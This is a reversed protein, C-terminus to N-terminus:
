FIKGPNLIGDPDFVKKIARLMQIETEPRTHHLFPKKTLGVGHEASISGELKAVEGFLLDDVRRCRELFESKEMSAPKLINVHLNGDGIHGFWIVEFDPYEGRLLANVRSLLEPARSIRVAIDNKYPTRPALSESIDERYRWFLQAQQSNQAVAGDLIWGQEQGREFAELVSTELHESVLDVEVLAFYPAPTPLPRELGTHACVKELAEASFMEYATLPLSRFESFVKMVADLGSLALLLVQLQKPPAALGITAEVVLGLTGESGIMLHRLDYGTANKVLSRGARLVEGTGTVVTLDRVWDRTLGYRVVKVGGANTAINGGIQSSGAAAFDVPYFLGHEVAKQQITETVVGAEVRLSREMPDYELVRNLRDMSVVVEGNMAVAGGSLGTRGGSPVLGVRHNRAWQVIKVVDEVSEPFVVASAHIQFYRTWDCGYEARIDPDTQVQNSRLQTLLNDLIETRM